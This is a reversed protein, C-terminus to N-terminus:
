PAAPVARGSREDIVLTVRLAPAAAQAARELLVRRAQGDVGRELVSVSWGDQRFDAGSDRGGPALGSPSPRGDIWYPLGAVPLRVGLLQESLAGADTGSVSLGDPGSARAGREDQEVRLLTTGLPSNLDLTVAGPREELRFNGSFSETREPLRASASFRGSWSAQPAPPALSACATLALSAALVALRSM